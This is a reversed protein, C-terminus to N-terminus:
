RLLLMKKTVSINDATLTYFYVGSAYGQRGAPVAAKSSIGSARNNGDFRSSYEGPPLQENVLTAVEEGLVSYVKVTVFSAKPISFSIQTEPNFPNPYNQQLIYTKPINESELQVSLLSQLAAQGDVKGNGWQASASNGTSADKRAASIIASRIAEPTISPKAQLMLAVLGAVHPSAMSTGQEVVYKGSPAILVPDSFSVTAARAAVIAQGPASVDPKQRGDRTPGMSSFTSFNNTRDTGNYAYTNNDIATWSWKTVYSGVTIGNEATGPMGVLKSFSHGSTFEVTEGGNGQISSGSLWIDFLGGQSMTGGTVTITWTGAAPTTTTADYIEIICEKVGKSNAAGTGNLIKVHGNTTSNQQSAGSAAMVTTNNPTKVEVTFNDGTKYWASFLVYDNTTGSTPTYVPIDFTFSKSTGNTLTATGYIADSGENGAAIVIQRGTTGSLETNVTVEEPQTGDHSGDHGGLSMNIVFPKGAAVAKQRIYTIGNIINTTSFGNDGGKVIILDAEPAVGKFKGSSVSGDGAATSAVHTGHGSIDEELVAGAPTGDLENNIVAATYEAGYNFGSPGVGTRSDTQDWLFLLRTKTTDTDSRFDLHKWDIGSDIVGVIVNKGKYVTGNVTGAHLKDVKMEILSKDLKPYRMKPAQIYVTSKLNSLKLMTAVDMRATFFEPYQAMPRVGISKAEDFATSFVIVDVYEQEGTSKFFRFSQESKKSIFQDVDDLLRIDIKSRDFSQSLSVTVVTFLVAFFTVIHKM